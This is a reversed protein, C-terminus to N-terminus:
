SRWRLRRSIKLCFRAAARASQHSSIAQSDRGDAKQRRTFKTQCLRQCSQKALGDEAAETAILVHVLLLSLIFLSEIPQTRWIALFVIRGAEMAELSILGLAHNALHSAVFAM